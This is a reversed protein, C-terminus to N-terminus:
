VMDTIYCCLKPVYKSTMPGVVFYNSAQSLFISTLAYVQSVDAINPRTLQNLVDPHKVVWIWLLSSSLVM